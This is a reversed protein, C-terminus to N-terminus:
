SQDDFPSKEDDILKVAKSIANKVINFNSKLIEHILLVDEDNLNAASHEFETLLDVLGPFGTVNARNENPGLIIHKRLWYSTSVSPDSFEREVSVLQDNMIRLRLFDKSDLQDQQHHFKAASKIFENIVNGLSDSEIGHASLNHTNDQQLFDLYGDRLIKGYDFLNFPLFYSDSLDRIIESNIQAVASHYKMYPDLLSVAELNDHITGLLPFTEQLLSENIKQSGVTFGSFRVDVVPIGAYFFFPSYMSHADPRKVRPRSKVTASKRYEYLMSGPVGLDDNDHQDENRSPKHFLRHDNKVWDDILNDLSQDGTGNAETRSHVSSRHTDSWADYITKLHSSGKNPNEVQRTANYVAQYLHPSSAITVTQNGTVVIDCNIYAVARAHLLKQNLEVWISSGLLSFSESGFSNFIITRRPRWGEKLLTGYVRAIELMVATGSISDLLGRTLSDRRSGVIVYRDPEASGRIIGTITTSILSSEQNHFEIIIESRGDDNISEDRYSPGHYLTFDFCNWEIPANQGALGRLLVGATNFSIPIIPINVKTDKDFGLKSLDLSPGPFNFSPVILDGYNNWATPHSKVTDQDIQVPKPFPSRSGYVDPDPFVLVAKPGLEQAEILIDYAQHHGLRIIIVKREVELSANKKLYEYDSKLGRNVYLIQESRITTANAQTLPLFPRFTQTENRNSYLVQNNKNILKILSEKEPIMTKFTRETSSVHDFGFAHFSDRLHNALKIEYHSGPLRETGNYEKLLSLINDGSIRALLKEKVSSDELYSAEFKNIKTDGLCNIRESTHLPAFYGLLFGLIGVSCILAIQIISIRKYSSDFPLEETTKEYIQVSGPENDSWTAELGDVSEEDRYPRYQASM